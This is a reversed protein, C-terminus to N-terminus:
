GLVIKSFLDLYIDQLGRWEMLMSLVNVINDQIFPM